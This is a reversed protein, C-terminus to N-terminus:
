GKNLERAQPEFDYLLKWAVMDGRTHGKMEERGRSVTYEHPATVCEKRLDDMSMDALVRAHDAVEQLLKIYPNAM